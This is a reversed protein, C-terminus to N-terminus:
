LHKFTFYWKTIQPNKWHYFMRTNYILHLVTRVQAYFTSIYWTYYLEFKHVSRQFIDLIICNSRTCLVNFYILYLVIRGQAYFTSIYWTYYLEFKHMSRQFIDLTICNSSTCPVNFYCRILHLVIRPQAYFTSM